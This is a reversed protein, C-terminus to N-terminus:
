IGSLYQVEIWDLFTKNKKPSLRPSLLFDYKGKTYRRTM